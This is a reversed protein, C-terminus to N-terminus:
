DDHAELDGGGAAGGGLVQVLSQLGCSPSDRQHLSGDRVSLGPPGAADPDLLRQRVKLMLTDDLKLRGIHTLM